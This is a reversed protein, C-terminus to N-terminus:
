FKDALSLLETSWFFGVFESLFDFLLRFLQTLVRIFLLIQGSLEPWKKKHDNFLGTLSGGSRQNQKRASTEKDQEVIQRDRMENDANVSITQGLRINNAPSGAMNM